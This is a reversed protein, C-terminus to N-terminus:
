KKIYRYLCLNPNSKFIITDRITYQKNIYMDDPFPFKKLEMLYLENEKLPFKKLHHSMLTENYFYYLIPTKTKLLYVYGWLKSNSVIVVKQSDLYQKAEALSAITSSDLKIGNDIGIEKLPTTQEIIKYNNWGSTRLYTTTFLLTYIILLTAFVNFLYINKTKLIYNYIVIFVPLIYFTAKLPFYVDTGINAFFPISILFLGIIFDKKNHEHFQQLVIAISFIYIVAPTTLNTLNRNLDFNFDYYAYAILILSFFFKIIPKIQTKQILIFLLTAPILINQILYVFIGYTWQIMFFTGHQPDFKLYEITRFIINIFDSFPTICLFFGMLGVISGIVIGLIITVKIKNDNFLFLPLGLVIIYVTLTTIVIFMMQSFLIGTTISWLIIGKKSNSSIALLYFGSGCFFVIQSFSNYCPILQVTPRLLFFGVIALLTFELKSSSKFFRRAGLGLIIASLILLLTTIIRTTLLNSPEWGFLYSTWHSGAIKFIGKRLNLLNWSEDSFILGKNLSFAVVSLVIICLLGLLYARYKFNFEFIQNTIFKLKNM